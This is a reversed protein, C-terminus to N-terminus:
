SYAYLLVVAHFVGKKKMRMEKVHLIPVVRFQLRASHVTITRRGTISERGRLVIVVSVFGFMEWQCKLKLEHGLIFKRRLRRVCYCSIVYICM